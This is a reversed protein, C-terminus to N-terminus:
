GVPHLVVIAVAAAAGIVCTCIGIAVMACLGDILARAM